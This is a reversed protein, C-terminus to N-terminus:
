IQTHKTFSNKISLDNGSPPTVFSVYSPQSGGNNTQRYMRTVPESRALQPYIINNFKRAFIKFLMRFTINKLDYLVLDKAANMSVPRDAFNSPTQVHSSSSAQADAKIGSICLIM